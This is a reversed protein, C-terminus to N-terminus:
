DYWNVEITKGRSTFSTIQKQEDLTFTVDETTEDEYSFVLKDEYVDISICDKDDIVEAYKDKMSHNPVYLRVRQGVSTINCASPKIDYAVGNTQIRWKYDNDDKPNEPVIKESVFGILTKDYDAKKIKNSAIDDSAMTIKDSLVNIRKNIMEEVTM